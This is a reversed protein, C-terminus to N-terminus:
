AEMPSRPREERWEATLIFYTRIHAHMYPYVSRQNRKHQACALRLLLPATWAAADAGSQCRLEHRPGGPRMSLESSALFRLCPCRLYRAASRSPLIRSSNTQFAGATRCGGASQRSSRQPRLPPLRSRPLSWLPPGLKPVKAVVLWSRWARLHAQSMRRAPEARQYQGPPRHKATPRRQSTSNQPKPKELVM